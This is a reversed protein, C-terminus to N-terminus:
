WMANDKYMEEKAYRPTLPAVHRNYGERYLGGKKMIGLQCREKPKQNLNSSMANSVSSAHVHFSLAHNTREPTELIKDGGPENKQM